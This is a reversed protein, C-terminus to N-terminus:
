LNVQQFFRLWDQQAAKLSLDIKTIGVNQKQKYTNYALRLSNIIDNDKFYAWRSVDNQYWPSLNFTEKNVKDLYYPVLYGNKEDLYDNLASFSHGIVPNGSLLADVHPLGWGESHQMLYFVNGNQHINKIEDSSANNKNIIKVVPSNNTKAIQLINNIINKDNESYTKIKLWYEVKQENRFAKNFCKITQLINKRSDLTGIGYFIVKNKLIHKEFKSNYSYRFHYIPKSYSFNCCFKSSAGVYDVLKMKEIAFNPLKDTEWLLIWLSKKPKFKQIIDNFEMKSIVCHTHIILLDIQKPINKTYPLYKSQENNPITEGFEKIPFIFLNINPLSNLIEFYNRCGQGFGTTALIPGALVVNKQKELFTKL